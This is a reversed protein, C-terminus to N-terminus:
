EVATTRAGPAPRRRRLVLWVPLGVLALLVAFPIVAGVIQLVVAASAGLAHWGDRLGGVFGDDSPSTQAVAADPRQLTIALTAFTTSDDLAALRAELADLDAERGSLESELRVVDGISTARGLLTRVREVSAKQSKVRSATDVYQDTVDTSAQARARVSGVGSVQEMVRDLSQEPVRVTLVSRDVELAPVDSPDGGSTTRPRTSTQEDQVYGQAATVTARVNAAAADVDKVEVVLQGSRVQRRQQLAVAGPAAASGDGASGEGAGGSADGGQRAGDSAVKSGSSDAVGVAPEAQSSSSGSTDAGSSACAALGSFAVGAALAAALV